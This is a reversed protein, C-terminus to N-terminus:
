RRRIAQLCMVGTFGLLGSWGEGLGRSRGDGFLEKKKVKINIM